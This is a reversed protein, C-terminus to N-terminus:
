CNHNFANLTAEAWSTFTKDEEMCMFLPFTEGSTNSTDHFSLLSWLPNWWVAVSISATRAEWDVILSRLAFSSLELYLGFRGLKAVHIIHPKNRWDPKMGISCYLEFLDSCSINHDASLRMVWCSGEPRWSSVRSQDSSAVVLQMIDSEADPNSHGSLSIFHFLKQPKDQSAASRLKFTSM